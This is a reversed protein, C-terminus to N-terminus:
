FLPVLSLCTKRLNYPVEGDYLTMSPAVHVVMPYATHAFHIPLSRSSSSVLKPFMGQLHKVNLNGLPTIFFLGSAKATFTSPTGRGPSARVHFMSGAYGLGPLFPPLLFWTTQFYRAAEVSRRVQWVDLLLASIDRLRQSLRAQSSSAFFVLEDLNKLNRRQDLTPLGSDRSRFPSSNEFCCM